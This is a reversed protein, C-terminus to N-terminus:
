ASVKFDPDFIWDVIRQRLEKHEWDYDPPRDSTPIGLMDILDWLDDKTM